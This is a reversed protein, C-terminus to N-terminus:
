SNRGADVSSDSRWLSLPHRPLLAVPFLAAVRLQFDRDSFRIVRSSADSQYGGVVQWAIRTFCSATHTLNLDNGRRYRPLADPHRLEVDNAGPPPLAKAILAQREQEGQFHLAHAGSLQIGPHQAFVALTTRVADPLLADDDNLIMILDASSSAVARNISAAQGLNTPNVLLRVTNRHAPPWTAVVQEAVARSDDPSADVILVVEDPFRSQQAISSLATPLFAAHQYVPVVVCLTAPPPVRSPLAARHERQFRLLRRRHIDPRNLLRALLDRIRLKM